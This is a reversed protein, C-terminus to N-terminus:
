QAELTVRYESDGPGTANILVYHIGSQRPTFLPSTAEFQQTERNYHQSPFAQVCTRQFVYVQAPEGSLHEYDVRVTQGKQLEITYIKLAYGAPGGASDVAADLRGEVVQGFAMSAYDGPMCFPVMVSAPAVKLEFPISPASGESRARLYIGPDEGASTTYQVQHFVRGLSDAMIPECDQRDYVAIETAEHPSSVKLNYFAIYGPPRDPRVLVAGEYSGTSTRLLEGRFFSGM